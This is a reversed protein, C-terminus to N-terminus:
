AALVEIGGDNGNLNILEYSGDDEATCAFYHGWRPHNYIRDVHWERGMWRVHMGPEIAEPRRRQEIM